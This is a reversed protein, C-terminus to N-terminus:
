GLALAAFCATSTPGREKPDRRTGSPSDCVCYSGSRYVGPTKSPGREEPGRLDMPRPDCRVVPELDRAGGSLGAPTRRPEALGDVVDAAARVLAEGSPDGDIEWIDPEEGETFDTVGPVDWFADEIQQRFQDELPDSVREAVSVSVQGWSPADGHDGELDDPAGSGPPSVSYTQATLQGRGSSPWTATPVHRASSKM